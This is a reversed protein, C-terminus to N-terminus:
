EVQEITRSLDESYIQMRNKKLHVLVGILASSLFVLCLGCITATLDFLITGIALNYIQLLIFLLTGWIMAICIYILIVDSRHVKTIAKEMIEVENLTTILCGFFYVKPDL